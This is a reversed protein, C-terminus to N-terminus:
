IDVNFDKSEDINLYEKAEINSIDLPISIFANGFNIPFLM